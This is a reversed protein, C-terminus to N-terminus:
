ANDLHERLKTLFDVDYHQDDFVTGNAHDKFFNEFYSDTATNIVVARNGFHRKLELMKEKQYDEGREDPINVLVVPIINHGLRKILIIDDYFENVATELDDHDESFITGDFIAPYASAAEKDSFKLDGANIQATLLRGKSIEDTHIVLTHGGDALSVDLGPLLEHKTDATLQQRGIAKRIAMISPYSKVYDSIVGATRDDTATVTTIGEPGLHWAESVIFLWKALDEPSLKSYISFVYRLRVANLLDFVESILDNSRLQGWIEQSAPNAQVVKEEFTKEVDQQMIIDTEGFHLFRLIRAMPWNAAGAVQRSFDDETYGLLEELYANDVRGEGVSWADILQIACQRQRMDSAIELDAQSAEGSAIFFLCLHERIDGAIQQADQETLVEREVFRELFTEVLRASYEEHGAVSVMKGYDHLAFTLALIFPMNSNTAILGEFMEKLRRFSDLAIDDTGNLRRNNFYGYATDVDEWGLMNVARVFERNHQQANMVTGDDMRWSRGGTINSLLDLQLLSSVRDYLDEVSAEKNNVSQGIEVIEDIDEEPIARHLEHLTNELEERLRHQERLDTAGQIEFFLRRHSMELFEERSKPSFQGRAELKIYINESGHYVWLNGETDEIVGIRRNQVNPLHARDIIEKFAEQSSLGNKLVLNNYLAALAVCIYKVSTETDSFDLPKRLHTRNSLNIGYGTSTFCFMLAVLIAVIKVNYPKRFM